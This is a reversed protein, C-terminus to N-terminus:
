RFNNIIVANSIAYGRAVFLRSGDPSFAFNYIDGSTFNTLPRSEQGNIHQLRINNVNGQLYIYAVSKSDPAWKAGINIIPQGVPTLTEILAGSEASIISIGKWGALVCSVFKGDPSYNPTFCETDGFRAPEGGGASIKWLESRENNGKVVTSGYVIWNGDPSVASDLENSEGFTLQTLNGGDGDVRYLHSRGDTKSAFIFYRGDPAARLEEIAAPETTLQKRNSGDANMTWISFGDGNRTLYAVRGDTLPEIGARGDAQGRTIQSVTNSDGGADMAWIQSLRKFPVALIEDKRTVGLSVPQHRSGDTSIRRSEGSLLSIYYIQDRRTSLAEKAKTGIFVLGQSDHTWAMRYCNDWKEPSLPKTLGSLPDIGEIECPGESSRKLDVLGFAITRGDPSWAGGGFLAKEQDETVTFITREDTGDSSAIIISTAKTGNLFRMFVMERGDPSFSPMAIATDALIKTRVGGLTPIRYLLKQPSGGQYVVFYIFQSDPTFTTALISGAIPETIELPSSQGTQQLMLHAKEGDHSVYVFYNGDPSITAYDVNEGDTLNTFAVENKAAPTKANSSSRFWVVSLSAILITAFVAAAIFYRRDTRTSASGTQLQPPEIEAVPVRDIENERWDALALVNGRRQVRLGPRNPNTKAADSFGNKNEEADRRRQPSSGIDSVTVEGNFRYGRRRLTEIFPKGSQQDGLTKRLIHLYQALNSEEVFSDAWIISMLEDKSLIEGRREMLALLTEIAKPALPIEVNKRYLMLHVADLRFDEFEYVKHNSPKDMKFNFESVRLTLDLSM